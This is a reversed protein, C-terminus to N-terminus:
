RSGDKMEKEYEERDLECEDYWIGLVRVEEKDPYDFPQGVYGKGILVGDVLRALVGTFGEEIDYVQVPMVDPLDKIVERLEGVNM